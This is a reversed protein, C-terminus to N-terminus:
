EVNACCGNAAAAIAAASDVAWAAPGYAYAHGAPRRSGRRGRRRGAVISRSAGVSTLSAGASCGGRREATNLRTSLLREPLTRANPMRRRSTAFRRRRVAENQFVSAASRPGSSSRFVRRGSIVRKRSSNYINYIVLGTGARERAREGASVHVQTGTATRTTSRAPAAGAACDIAILAHVTTVRALTVVAGCRCSIAGEISPEGGIVEGAATRGQDNGDRPRREGEIM